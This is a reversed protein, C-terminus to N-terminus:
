KCRGFRWENGDGFVTRIDYTRKPTNPHFKICFMRSQCFSYVLRAIPMKCMLASQIATDDMSHLVSTTVNRTAEMASSVDGEVIDLVYKHQTGFFKRGADIRIHKVFKVVVGIWMSMEHRLQKHLFAIYSTLRWHDIFGGPITTLVSAGDPCACAHIVRPTKYDIVLSGEDKEKKRKKKPPTVKVVQPEESKDRVHMRPRKLVQVIEVEVEVEDEDDDEEEEEEDEDSGSDLQTQSEVETPLEFPSNKHKVLLLDLSKVEDLDEDKYVDETNRKKALEEERVVNMDEENSEESGGAALDRVSRVWQTMTNQKNKKACIIKGILNSM